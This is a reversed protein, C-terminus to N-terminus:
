FSRCSASNWIYFISCSCEKSCFFILVFTFLYLFLFTICVKSIYDAQEFLFLLSTALSILFFILIEKNSYGNFKCISDTQNKQDVQVSEGPNIISDIDNEIPDFLSSSSPNNQILSPLENQHNTIHKPRSTEQKSDETTENLFNNNNNKNLDIENHSDKILLAPESNKVGKPLLIKYVKFIEKFFLM